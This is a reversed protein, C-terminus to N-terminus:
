RNKTMKSMKQHQKLVSWTGSLAVLFDPQDDPPVPPMVKNVEEEKQHLCSYFQQDRMAKSGMVIAALQQRVEPVLTPICNVSPIHHHRVVAAQHSCPSGDQGATCSCTGLHMDVLYKVGRESLSDVLFTLNNEDLSRIHEHAISVCRLRHCKLSIYHDIRNHAVSLLKRIYYLELCETVFSFMQVLNYAKVRSFVLEKLIRIGAVAYNNTQNGRTLLHRRYCIAWEKQREWLGQIHALFHPYLKVVECSQFETYRQKLQQQTDAYVLQIVKNILIQWHQNAIRNEGDHLWTWRRQLFHFVCLLLCIEPWMNHLANQEASSDDTMTIGPGREVGRGYFSHKPLVEKLLELGQTITEEQEDSTIIVGLPLGGAPHSTSLIYLSTNFRDLCWLLDDEGAQQINEHVRCMLPHARLLFWQSAKPTQKQKKKKQPSGIWWEHWKGFRNYREWDSCNLRAVLKQM